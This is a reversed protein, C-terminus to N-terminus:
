KLEEDDILGVWGLGVWGLGVEILGMNTGVCGFLGCSKNVVM